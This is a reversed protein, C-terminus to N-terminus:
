ETFRYTPYPGKSLVSSVQAQGGSGSLNQIGGDHSAARRYPKELRFFSSSCHTASPDSIFRITQYSVGRYDKPLESKWWPLSSFYHWDPAM